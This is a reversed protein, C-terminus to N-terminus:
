FWASLRRHYALDSVQLFASSTQSLFSFPRCQRFPSSVTMNTFFSECSDTTFNNSLTTDFPQPFPTPLVPPSTPITPVSQSTNQTSTPTLSPFVIAPASSTQTSVSSPITVTSGNLRRHLAHATHGNWYTGGALHVRTDPSPAALLDTFLPRSIFRTSFMLLVLTLPVIIVTLSTRWAVRRKQDRIVLASTPSLTGCAGHELPPPLMPTGPAMPQQSPTLLSPPPSLEPSSPTGDSFKLAAPFPSPPPTFM